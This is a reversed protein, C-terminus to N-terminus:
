KRFLGWAIFVLVTLELLNEIPDYLLQGPIYYRDILKLAWELVLIGFALTILLFKASQNKRFALVSISVIVLGVILAISITFKDVSQLLIKIAGSNYDSSTKEIIAFYSVGIAIIAIAAFVALIIKKESICFANNPTCIKKDKM